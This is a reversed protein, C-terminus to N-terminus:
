VPKGIFEGHHGNGSSDKVTRGGDEDFIWFAELGKSFPQAHGNATWTLTTILLTFVLRSFWTVSVTM